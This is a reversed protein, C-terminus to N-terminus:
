REISLIKSEKTGDSYQMQLIYIGEEESSLDIEQDLNKKLNKVPNGMGDTILVEVLEKDTDNKIQFRDETPNPFPSSTRIPDGVGIGCDLLFSRCVKPCVTGDNLTVEACIVIYYNTWNGSPYYIPSATGNSAGTGSYGGLAWTWNVNSVNSVGTLSALGTTCLGGGGENAFHISNSTPCNGGGGTNGSASKCSEVCNGNVFRTVKVTYNGSANVSVTQNTNSGSITANGNCIEWYYAQAATAQFSGSGLDQIYNPGPGCCIPNLQANSTGIVGVMLAIFVFFQKM